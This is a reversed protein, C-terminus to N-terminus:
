AVRVKRWPLGPPLVRRIIEPKTRYEVTVVQASYFEPEALAAQLRAIEERSKVFGM